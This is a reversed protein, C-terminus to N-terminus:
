EWDSKQHFSHKASSVPKRYSPWNWIKLLQKHINNVWCLNFSIIMYNQNICDVLLLKKTRVERKSGEFDTYNISDTATWLCLFSLFFPGLFRSFSTEQTTRLDMPQKTNDTVVPLQMKGWFDDGVAQRIDLQKELLLDIILQAKRRGVRAVTTWFDQNAEPWM